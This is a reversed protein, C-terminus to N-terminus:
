SRAERPNSNVRGAAAMSSGKAGGRSVGVVVLAMYSKEKRVRQM